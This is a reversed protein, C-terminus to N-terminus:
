LGRPKNSRDSKARARGPTKALKRAESLAGLRASLAAFEPARAKGMAERRALALEGWADQGADNKDEPRAGLDLLAECLRWQWTKLARKLADDGAEDREDLRAGGEMMWLAVQIVRERDLSEDGCGWGGSWAMLGMSSPCNLGAEAMSWLNLIDGTEACQSAADMVGRGQDCGPSLPDWRAGAGLLAKLKRASKSFVAVWDRGDDSRGASVRKIEEPTALVIAREFLADESRSWHEWVSPHFIEGEERGAAEAEKLASESEGRIAYIGAAHARPGVPRIPAERAEGGKSAKSM